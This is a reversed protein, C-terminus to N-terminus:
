DHKLYLIKRLPLELLSELEDLNGIFALHKIHPVESTKTLRSTPQPTVQVHVAKKQQGASCWYWGTDRMQLRKLTVTFTGTRDDSIAM